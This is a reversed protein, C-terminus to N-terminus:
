GVIAMSQALAKAHRAVISEYTEDSIEGETFFFGSKIVEHDSARIPVEVWPDDIILLDSRTGRITMTPKEVLKVALPAMAVGGLFTFFKRRDM